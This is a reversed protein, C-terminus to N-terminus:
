RQNRLLTNEPMGETVALQAMRWAHSEVGPNASATPRHSKLRHRMESRSQLGGSVPTARRTAIM